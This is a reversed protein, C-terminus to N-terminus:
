KFLQSYHASAARIDPQGFIGHIAALMDAGADILPAGNEPTIGGIAVTPINLEQKARQLLEIDAQVAQPKIKSPFFRGFAIYDAGQAEAEVALEFQNYCSVGIITDPGLLKRAETLDPDDKGLHVGNAGISLALDVDDNIILPISSRQCILLLTAAERIRDMPSKQKDRYQIVRAGGTIALAIQEMLPHEQDLTSDTIAYLGHLKKSKSNM